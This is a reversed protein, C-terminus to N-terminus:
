RVLTQEIHGIIAKAEALADLPQHLASCVGFKRMGAGTVQDAIDPNSLAAVILDFDAGGEDGVAGFIADGISIEAAVAVSQNGVVSIEPDTFLAAQEVAVSQARLTAHADNELYIAAM